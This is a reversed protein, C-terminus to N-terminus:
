RLVVVNKRDKIKPYYISQSSVLIFRFVNLLEINVDSMTFAEDIIVAYKYGLRMNTYYSERDKIFESFKIKLIVKEKCIDNSIIGLIESQKVKKNNLGISYNVLYKKKFEGKIVDLLVRSSVLNYEVLHSDEKIDKSTFVKNIASDNYLKPFKLNHNLQTNYLGDNNVLYFEISFNKCITSDIFTKKKLLDEKVMEFIKDKFKKSKIIGLEKERFDELQNIVLQVSDCEKVADFYLLFKFMSFTKKLIDFNECEEKMEEFKNVMTLGINNQFDEYEKLGINYYRIDVYTKLLQDFIDQNFHKAMITVAYKNLCSKSFIIYEDVLNHKM